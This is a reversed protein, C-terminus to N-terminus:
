ISMRIYEHVVTDGLTERVRKGDDIISMQELLVIESWAKQLKGSIIKELIETPKGSDKMEETFEAHLKAKVDDSVDDTSLFQPQMAAVQLAVAKAKDADGTYFVASAVKDGPHAYVYATGNKVFCDLVQMNEWMAVANDQLIQTVQDKLETTAETYSTLVDLASLKEIIDHAIAKFVDNKAAFDTECALKLWVVKEGFQKIIVIWENTARDAKKAAKLAGKERLIEQARVLDGDADELASKCDKLPALTIARLEKLVAMDVM